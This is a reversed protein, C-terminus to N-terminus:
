NLVAITKIQYSIKLSRYSSKQVIISKKDKVNIEITLAKASEWRVDPNGICYGAFFPELYLYPFPQYWSSIFLHTGYPAAGGESMSKVHYVKLNYDPSNFISITKYDFTLTVYAFLAAISLLLLSIRIFSGKTALKM